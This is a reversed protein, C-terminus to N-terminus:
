TRRLTLCAALARPDFTAIAGRDKVRAAFDHQDPEVVVIFPLAGLSVVRAGADAAHRMASGADVWPAFLVAVARGSDAPVPKAFVGTQLLFGTALLTAIIAADLWRGSIAWQM